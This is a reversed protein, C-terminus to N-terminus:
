CIANFIALALSKDVACSIFANRGHGDRVVPGHAIFVQLYLEGEFDDFLENDPPPPWDRTAHGLNNTFAEFSWLISYGSADLALSLDRLKSLCGLIQYMQVEEGSGKSRRVAMTLEEILPCPRTIASLITSSPLYYDSWQKNCAAYDKTPLLSLRRLTIGHHEVIQILSLTQITKELCLNRVPRVVLLLHNVATILATSASNKHVTLSLSQLSPMDVSSLINLADLSIRSAIKLVKLARFDTHVQWSGIDSASVVHQHLLALGQLSGRHFPLSGLRAMKSEPCPSLPAISSDVGRAKRMITLRKLNAASGAVIRRLTDEEYVLETDLGPVALRSATPLYAARISSPSPSTILQIFSADLSAKLAPVRSTNVHLRCGIQHLATLICSLVASACNYVLDSIAPLEAIFSALTQWANDSVAEWAKIQGIRQDLGLSFLHDGELTKQDPLRSLCGLGWRSM